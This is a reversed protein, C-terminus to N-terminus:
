LVSAKVKFLSRKIHFIRCFVKLDVMVRALLNLEDRTLRQNRHQVQVKGCFLRMRM